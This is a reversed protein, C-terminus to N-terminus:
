SAANWGARTRRKVEAGKRGNKCAGAAAEVPKPIKRPRRELIARNEEMYKALDKGDLLFQTALRYTGVRMGRQDIVMPGRELMGIRVLRVLQIELYQRAKEQQKSLITPSLVRYQRLDYDRLLCIAFRLTENAVRKRDALYYFALANLLPPEEQVPM